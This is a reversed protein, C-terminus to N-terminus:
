PEDQEHAAVPNDDDAASCGSEHSGTLGSFCASGHKEQLFHALRTALYADGALSAAIKCIDCIKLGKNFMEASVSPEEVLCEVM